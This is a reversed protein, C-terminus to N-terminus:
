HLLSEGAASLCTIVSIQKVNRSVGHHITQRSMAALAIVKKTKRHEWDSIGVEDLNFVLEAGCGQVYEHLDQITRELFARPVQSRQEEQPASMTEIVEDSHRVVFSNVWGRTFKIKFEATCHDTIETRTVPTDQEANQRIWDLIQQERDQDLAAHKGRQGPEDLSHTLAAQV